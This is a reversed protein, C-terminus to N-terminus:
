SSGFLQGKPLDLGLMTHFVVWFLASGLLAALLRWYWRTPELLGFFIFLMATSAVLFGVYRIVALYVALTVLCIVVRPHFLSRWEIGKGSRRSGVATAVLAASFATLLVSTWLPVFGPGPTTPTGIELQLSLFIAILGFALWFTGTLIDDRAM